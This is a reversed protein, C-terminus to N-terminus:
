RISDLIWPLLAIAAISVTFIAIFFIELETSPQNPISSKKLTCLLQYCDESLYGVTSKCRGFHDRVEPYLILISSFLILM